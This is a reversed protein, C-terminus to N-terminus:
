GLFASLLKCMQLHDDAGMLERASHMSLQSCGMDVTPMGTLHAHIPGITTGCPIDGRAAFKQYPIQHKHCLEMITAASRADTAYRYQAHSKIVIGKNLLVPHRPEHKDCYNPHQAHTLDISACISSSLIRFYDERSLKLALIIREVIHPFFPSGAGQATNSGIEENDWFAVMKITHDDAKASSIGHMAAHVSALSDIRYAAILEQDQGLLRAPDLPFLFLESSVLEKLPIVKKLCQELFSTKRKKNDQKKDEAISAIAALHEQKNLVLGNENVNRDLHIALQPITVPMTDLRVIAEQLKDKNNKYFVRGAIGLDRNLWSTLLPGGYIELGLMLMNEKRFEANAKLRFTPSDTHSAAVHIKIPAKKPVIFACISSGNRTVFYSGGPKVYWAETEKLETYGQNLFEKTCNEVAHWATPSNDLFALLNNVVKQDKVSM